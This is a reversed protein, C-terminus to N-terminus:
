SEVRCIKYSRTVEDLVLIHTPEMLNLACTEDRKLWTTSLGTPNLASSIIPVASHLRGIFARRQAHGQVCQRIVTGPRRIPEEDKQKPM